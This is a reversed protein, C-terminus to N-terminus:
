LEYNQLLHIAMRLVTTDRQVPQAPQALSGAGPAQNM